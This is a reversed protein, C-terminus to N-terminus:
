RVSGQFGASAMVIKNHPTGAKILYGRWAVLRLACIDVRLLPNCVAPLEPLPLRSMAFSAAASARRRLAASFMRLMSRMERCTRYM